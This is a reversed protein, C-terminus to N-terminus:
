RQYQILYRDEFGMYAAFATQLHGGTMWLTPKFVAHVPDSLSPCKSKVYDMLNVGKLKGTSKDYVNISASKNNHTLVVPSASYFRFLSM